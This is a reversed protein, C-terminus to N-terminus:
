RYRVRGPKAILVTVNPPLPERRSGHRGVQSPEVRLRRGVVRVFPGADPNNRRQFLQDSGTVRPSGTDAAATSRCSCGGAPRTGEGPVAEADAVADDALQEMM